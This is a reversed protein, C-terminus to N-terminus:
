NISWYIFRRKQIRSLIFLHVFSYIFSKVLISYISLHIFFHNREGENQFSEGKLARITFCHFALFYASFSLSSWSSLTLMKCNRIIYIPKHHACHNESHYHNPRNKITIVMIDIISSLSKMKRQQNQNQHKHHHNFIINM